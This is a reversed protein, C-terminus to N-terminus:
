RASSPMREATLRAIEDLRAQDALDLDIEGIRAEIATKRRETVGDGALEAQLAAKEENLQDLQKNLAAIQDNWSVLFDHGFLAPNNWGRLAGTSAWVM